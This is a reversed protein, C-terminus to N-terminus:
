GREASYRQPSTLGTQAPKPWVLYMETGEGVASHIELLADIEAARERMMQLGLQSSPVDLPFGRGNDRVRVEIHGTGGHGEIWTQTAQAHKSINNLTEQMIRYAALHVTPPLQPEGEFTLTVALRKRGQVAQILQQILDTWPTSQLNTPRLQLLLTRLEALAGQILRNLDAIQEPLQEPQQEWLDPLVQAMVSATFLTQSVADHLDRAMQQREHLAAWEQVQLLHQANRLAAAVQYAFPQLIAAERESFKKRGKRILTLFGTVHHDSVIPVVLLASVGQLPLELEKIARAKSVLVPQQTLQARRYVQFASVYTLARHWSELAARAEEDLGESACQTLTEEDTLCLYAADYAALRQAARLARDLVENLELTSSLDAGTERLTEALIRQEREEAEAQKRVTIDDFVLAVQRSGEGGLRSAYIRFWRNAHQTWAEFRIPEGTLAVQGFRQIWKMNIKPVVEHIQKGVIEQMGTLKEQAPNAELVQYGVPKGEDDFHMEIVSFGEDISNFLSRYKAESVQLTEETQKRQTFNVTVVLAAYPQGHEDDLRTLTSNAWVLTGDPQCYRKDFSRTEGTEIVHSLAAMSVATDDPHTVQLVSLSLLEQSSRGLMRCLHDNVRLFRGDLGIESMGVEAHAFIGALHQQSKRLAIEARAREIANWIREATEEILVLEDDTWARVATHHLFLVAVLRGEQVLPVGVQARIQARAYATREAETLAPDTFIDPIVVTHKARLMQVFTAGLDQMEFRGSLSQVGDTYDQEVVLYQNDDTIEGYHVRSVQLHQGLLRIAEAKIVSADGLPRVTDSFAVRFRNHAAMIQAREETREREVAYHLARVLARTGIEEKLLYDQAGRALAQLGEAENNLETIVIIATHPAAKRIAEVANTEAQHTVLELDLLVVDISAASLRNLAESLRTVAEVQFQFTSKEHLMNWVTRIHAPDDEVLLIHIPEHPTYLKAMVSNWNKIITAKIHFTILDIISSTGTM